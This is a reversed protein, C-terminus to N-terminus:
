NFNLRFTLILSAKYKSMNQRPLLLKQLRIFLKSMNLHEYSLHKFKQILSYNFLLILGFTVVIRYIINFNIKNRPVQSISLTESQYNQVLIRPISIDDVSNPITYSNDIVLSNLIVLALLICLLLKSQKKNNFSFNYNIM